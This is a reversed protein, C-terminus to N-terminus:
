EYKTGKAENDKLIRRWYILHYLGNIIGYHRKALPYMKGYMENAYENAYAESVRDDTKVIETLTASYIHHGLEHFLTDVIFLKGFTHIFSGDLVDTFKHRKKHFSLM